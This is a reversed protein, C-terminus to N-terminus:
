EVVLYKPLEKGQKKLSNVEQNIIDKPMFDDSALKLFTCVPELDSSSMKIRTKVLQEEM